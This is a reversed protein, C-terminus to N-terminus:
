DLSVTDGESVRGPTSVQAYVGLHNPLSPNLQNLAAFLGPQRVLGPQARLPMACRVTAQMVDLRVEDGILISRGCWRNEAFPEGDVELVLNPRFRRVDWDLEPRRAACGDLTGRTLLHVPALDLFTGTPAPIDYYDAGDDPPDFTMQYSRQEGAAPAALRVPRGLWGSLREDVAPDDLDVTGSGPLEITGGSLHAMLLEGLQKASLIRGTGVDLVARARDGEVGGALIVIAEERMGQMSKVPYRWCEDVTGITTM